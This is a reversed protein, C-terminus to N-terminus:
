QGGAFAKYLFSSNDQKGQVPGNSVAEAAQQAQAPPFLDADFTTVKVETFRVQKLVVSFSTIDNSTEDQSPNLNEIMMQPFYRLWTQVSVIQKSEKLAHLQMYALQMPNIQQGNGTFYNILNTARKAIADIQDAVYKAKNIAAAAKATAQNTLPGVYADVETLKSSLNSLAYGLSGPQPVRYVLNGVFGNLTIRVPKIVAHDNVFSGTEIWHDTIDVSEDISEGSPVDFVWGSIGQNLASSVVVAQSKELYKEIDIGVLNEVLPSITKISM